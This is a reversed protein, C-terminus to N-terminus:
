LVGDLCNKLNYSWLCNLQAWLTKNLDSTVKIVSVTVSNIATMTQLWSAISPRYLEHIVAKTSKKNTIHPFQCHSMRQSFIATTLLSHAEHSLLHRFIRLNLTATMTINYIKPRSIWFLGGLRAQIKLAQILGPKKSWPQRSLEATSTVLGPLGLKPPWPQWSLKATAM